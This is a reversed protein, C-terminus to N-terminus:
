VIEPVLVLLQVFVLVKCIWTFGVGVTVGPLLEGIQLFEGSFKVTFAEAPAV